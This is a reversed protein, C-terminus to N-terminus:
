GGLWRRWARVKIGFRRGTLRELADAASRAEAADGNGLATELIEVLLPANRLDGLFGLAKLCQRRVWPDEEERRRDLFFRAAEKPDKGLGKWQLALPVMAAGRRKWDGERTRPLLLRVLAENPPLEGCLKLVERISVENGERLERELDPLLEGLPHVRLLLRGTRRNPNRHDRLLYVLIARRADKGLRRLGERARAFLSGRLSEPVKGKGFAVEPLVGRALLRDNGSLAHGLLMKALWPGYRPDEARVEELIGPFSPDAQLFSREVAALRQLDAKTLNKAELVPRSSRGEGNACAACLLLIAVRVAPFGRRPAGEEIRNRLHLM